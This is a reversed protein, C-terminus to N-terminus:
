EVRPSSFGGVAQRRYAYKRQTDSDRVALCIGVITWLYGVGAVIVWMIMASWINDMFAPTELVREMHAPDTSFVGPTRIMAAMLLSGGWWVAHGAWLHFFNIGDEKPLALYCINLIVQLVFYIPGLFFLVIVLGIPDMGQVVYNVTAGAIPWAFALIWGLVIFLGRASNTRDTPATVGYAPVAGYGSPSGSGYSAGFGGVPNQTGYGASNFSSGFGQYGSDEHNARGGQYPPHYNSPTM